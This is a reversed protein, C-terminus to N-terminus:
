NNMQSSDLFLCAFFDIFWKMQTSFCSLLNNLPFFCDVMLVNHFCGNNLWVIAGWYMQVQVFCGSFGSTLFQLIGFVSLYAHHQSTAFRCCGTFTQVATANFLLAVFIYWILNWVLELVLPLWLLHWTCDSSICSFTNIQNSSISDPFFWVVIDPWLLKWLM